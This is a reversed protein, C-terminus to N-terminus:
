DQIKFISVATGTKNLVYIKGNSCAIDVPERIAPHKIEAILNGRFDFLVVTSAASDCVFIRGRHDVDLGAPDLLVDSGFSKRFNGFFDYMVIEKSGADTVLISESEYLAIKVPRVLPKGATGFGGFRINQTGFVNTHVIHNNESDIIFLEGNDSRAIDVPYKFLIEGGEHREGEISSVFNLNGDFHMIRHNNKDAVYINLGDTAWLSVPEDFQSENWGFGGISHLAKGNASFMEIRNNGTDAIYIVDQLSVSIGQPSRLDGLGGGTLGFSREYTVVPSQMCLLSGNSQVLIVIAAALSLLKNM